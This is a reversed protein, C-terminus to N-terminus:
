KLHHGIPFVWRFLNLGPRKCWCDRECDCRLRGARERLLGVVAALLYLLLLRKIVWGLYRDVRMM